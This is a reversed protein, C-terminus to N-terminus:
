RASVPVAPRGGVDSRAVFLPATGTGGSRGLTPTGHREHGSADPWMMVPEHDALTLTNASLWLEIADHTSAPFRTSKTEARLREGTGTVGADVKSDANGHGLTAKAQEILSRSDGGQSVAHNPWKAGNRVWTELVHIEEDSLKKGPPMKFDGTQRVAQILLSEDPKGARIVEGSDGGRAIGAEQDLRLGSESKEAGHCKVCHAILLPRVRTEFHEIAAIDDALVASTVAGEFYLLGTVVAVVIVRTWDRSYRQTAMSPQNSIATFTM